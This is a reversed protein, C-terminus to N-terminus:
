RGTEEALQKNEKHFDQRRKYLHEDARRRRKRGLHQVSDLNKGVSEVVETDFDIAKQRNTKPAEDAWASSPSCWPCRRLPPAPRHSALWRIPRRRRIASGRSAM